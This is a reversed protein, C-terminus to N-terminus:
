QSLSAPNGVVKNSLPWFPLITSKSKASSSKGLSLALKSKEVQVRWGRVPGGEESSWVYM